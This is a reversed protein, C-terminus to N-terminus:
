FGKEESVGPQTFEKGSDKEGWLSGEIGSRTERFLFHKNWSCFGKLPFLQLFFKSLTFGGFITSLFKLANVANAIAADELVSAVASLIQVAEEFVKASAKLDEVTSKLSDVTVCIAKATAALHKQNYCFEEETKLQYGYLRPLENNHAPVSVM